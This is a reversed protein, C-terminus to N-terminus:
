CINIAKSDLICNGSSLRVFLFLSSFYKEANKPESKEPNTQVGLSFM